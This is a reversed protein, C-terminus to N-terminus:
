RCAPCLGSFVLHHGTVAFGTGKEVKAEARQLLCDPLSSVAGCDDCGDWRDRLPSGGGGRGCGRSNAAWGCADWRALNKLPMAGSNVFAGAAFLGPGHGDDFSALAVV